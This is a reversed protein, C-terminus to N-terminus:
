SAALSREIIEAFLREMPSYNKDLGAQVAAFYEKKKEVAIVSFDLPPLGAQLAMLTLLVRAVRGNGERFPHILVLEGHTEALAHIVDARDPVNCPTRRRLMSQEFQKMLAPIHVAAAFPFDDKLVNIQRYQGAWEYIDGLWSRNRDEFQVGKRGRGAARDIHSQLIQGEM